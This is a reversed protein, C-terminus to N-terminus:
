NTPTAILSRATETDGDFQTFLKDAHQKMEPTVPVCVMGVDPQGYVISAGLPAALIAPLTLLDEEGTIYLVVPKPDDIAERLSILAEKSIEAPPNTVSIQNPSDSLVRSIEDRVAERKTKGDIAAVAPEVGANRLHYTVVDGVTILLRGRDYATATESAAALLADTDTFVPGLPDKFASRLSDPLTLM